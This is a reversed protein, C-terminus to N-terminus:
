CVPLSSYEEGLDIVEGAVPIYMCSYSEGSKMLAYTDADSGDIEVFIGNYGTSTTTAARLIYVTIKGATVPVKTMTLPSDWRDPEYESSDGDVKEMETNILNYLRVEKYESVDGDSLSGAFVSFKADKLWYSEAYGKWDALYDSKVCGEFDEKRDACNSFGIKVSKWFSSEIDRAAYFLRKGEVASAAADSLAKERAAMAGALGVISVAALLFLLVSFVGKKRM